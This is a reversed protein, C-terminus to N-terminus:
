PTASSQMQAGGAAASGTRAARAARCAGDAGRYARLLRAGTPNAACLNGAFAPQAASLMLAAAAGALAVRASEAQKPMAARM